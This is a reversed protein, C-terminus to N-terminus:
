EVNLCCRVETHALDSWNHGVRQSGVSQLRGPEETWPITWALVSSHAAMDEELPDEGDLSWVCMRTNRVSVPPNKVVLAVITDLKVNYQILADLKGWPRRLSSITFSLVALSSWRILSKVDHTTTVLILVIYFLITKRHSSDQSFVIGTFPIPFYTWVQFDEGSLLARESQLLCDQM